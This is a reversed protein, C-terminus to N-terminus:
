LYASLGAAFCFFLVVVSFNEAPEVIPFLFLLTISTILFATFEAILEPQNIEQM